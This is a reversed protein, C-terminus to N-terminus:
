SLQPKSPPARMSLRSSLPWRASRLKSVKEAEPDSKKRGTSCAKRAAVIERVSRAGVSVFDEGVTRVQGRLGELDAIEVEVGLGGPREFARRAPATLAPPRLGIDEV